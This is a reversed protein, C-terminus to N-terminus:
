ERPHGYGRVLSGHGISAIFKKPRLSKLLAVPNSESGGHSFFILKQKSALMDYVGLSSM